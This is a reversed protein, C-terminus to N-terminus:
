GLAIGEFQVGAKPDWEGLATRKLRPTLPQAVTPPPWVLQLDDSKGSQSGLNSRREELKQLIEFYRPFRPFGPSNSPTIGMYVLCSSFGLLNPCALDKQNVRWGDEDLVPSYFFQGGFEQCTRQLELSSCNLMWFNWARTVLTRPGWWPSMIARWISPPSGVCRRSWKRPAALVM